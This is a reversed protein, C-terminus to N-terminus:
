VMISGIQEALFYVKRSGDSMTVMGEKVEVVQGDVKVGHKLSMQITTKDTMCKNLLVLFQM